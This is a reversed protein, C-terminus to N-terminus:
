WVSSYCLLHQAMWCSDSVQSIWSPCPIQDPFCSPVRKTWFPGGRGRTQLISLLLITNYPPCSWRCSPPIKCHLWTCSCNSRLFCWYPRAPFAVWTSRSTVSSNTKSCEASPTKQLGPSEPDAMISRKPRIQPTTYPAVLRKELGSPVGAPYPKEGSQSHRYFVHHAGHICLGSDGLNPPRDKWTVGRSRMRAM